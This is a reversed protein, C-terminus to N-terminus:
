SELRLRPLLSRIRPEGRMAGLAPMIKIWVLPGDGIEYAEPNRKSAAPSGAPSGPLLVTTLALTVRSAADELLKGNNGADLDYSNAWLRTQGRTQVLQATVHVRDQARRVTGELAYDAGLEWGIQEITERTGKYHMASTRAIVSLKDPNLNGIQTILEDTLGDSFVEENPDGSLNVFPLVVVVARGSAASAFRPSLNRLAYLGASAGACLLVVLLLARRFWSRPRFPSPHEKAAARPHPLAHAVAGAREASSEEPEPLCEVSALFRYGLRPVTEVFRPNEASEDLAQRVKTLATNLNSDFDVTTEAPWLRNRFQERTVTQGAREVLLALVQFPKGQLKIKLGDKRLESRRLCIEYAGFRFRSSTSECDAM